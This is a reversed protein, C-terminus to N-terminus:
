LQAHWRALVGTWDLNETRFFSPPSSVGDISLSEDGVGRLSVDPVRVQIVAIGRVPNVASAGSTVAYLPLQSEPLRAHKWGSPKFDGTKYDIVLEGGDALKDLRDLRVNLALPGISVQRELETAVRFGPRQSELDRLGLLLKWLRNSELPRLSDFFMDGAPLLEDLVTSLMPDFLNRLEDLGITGLGSQCREHRYLEELLRHVVRGRTAPDLPRAPAELPVGHLRFEVFARAPCVAQMALVRTGGPVVQGPPLAPPADAPAEEPAASDAIVSRDPHLSTEDIEAARFPALLPSPLTEAQEQEAPWSLVVDDASALLREFRRRTLAEIGSASADPIGAARQLSLPVLAHPRPPPPWQDATMGCVWLASFDQGEAERLSLVQVAGAASEPEFPRDRVQQALLGLAARLPLAGAVDDTAAFSALVDQWAEAAQYEESALGRDGPWGAAALWAAFHGAWQSPPLHRGRATGALADAQRWQEGARAAGTSLLALMTTLRVRDLPRRRLKLEARARGAREHGAGAVYCSRLLQSAQEFSVDTAILQLLDLACHVVPYDALQRGVALALPRVRPERLQWGPSLVELGLRRVRAADRELGPIVIAVPPDTDARANARRAAWTCARALEDNEDRASVVACTGNRSPPTISVVAAGAAQLAEALRQLAPTWPDFGAFGVLREGAPIVQTGTRTRAALLGGSDQWDHQELLSLYAGVWNAFARADDSDAARHLDAPSIEWAQCLRWGAALLPVIVGVDPRDHGDSALVRRWVLRSEDDSLLRRAERASSRAIGAEFSRRLWADLPLVDASPWARAGATARSQDYRWRIQRALRHTATVVTGGDTLVAEGSLFEPRGNPPM